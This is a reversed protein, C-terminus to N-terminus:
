HMQRVIFSKKSVSWVYQNAYLLELSSTIVAHFDSYIRTLHATQKEKLRHLTLSHLTQGHNPRPDGLRHM